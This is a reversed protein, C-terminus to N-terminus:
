LFTSGIEIIVKYHVFRNYYRMIYITSWDVVCYDPSIFSPVYKLLQFTTEQQPQLPIDALSFSGSPDM